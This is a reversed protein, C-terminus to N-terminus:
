KAKDYDQSTMRSMQVCNEQASIYEQKIARVSREIIIIGDEIADDKWVQVINWSPDRGCCQCDKGYLVMHFSGQLNKHGGSRSTTKAM